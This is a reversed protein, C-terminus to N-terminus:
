RKRHMEMSPRLWFLCQRGSLGSKGSRYLLDNRIRGGGQCLDSVDTKTGTQDARGIEFFTKTQPYAKVGSLTKGYEPLVYFAGAEAKENCIFHEAEVSLM